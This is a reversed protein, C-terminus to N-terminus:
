PSLAYVEVQGIGTAGNKGRVIATYPAAPLTAVIASELNDPPPVTTAIIEAEQTSRWDDNMFLIMGNANAIELTSDPLRGPIPTGGVNLSPGLARVIVRRSGSGSIILGGIMVNDGTQVLGRTSINALQSDVTRNLDYVEVSGVGSTNGAGRVIATYATTNAPLTAVIASELDNPPPVTSAIIEAEQTARWNDNMAITGSPGKLELTTDGLRGPIPVGGVNLSPGLARVIVKKPATGTVIFGGILVNDGTQVALRTSINALVTPLPPGGNLEFAGIDRGDGGAANPVAPDDFISLGRQDSLGLSNGKDIAPSGSLLGVTDTNGGNNQLAGLMANIPAASTGVQDGTANFGASSDGIGILNYGQSTFTGDVDSGGNHDGTNGASVTNRTIGTGGAATLGGRGVGPSGNTFMNSGTGGAGGHGANGTLTAAAVTMTGQNFVGTSASGGNGGFMGNGGAGGTASNATMTSNTITLNATTDNFIAGGLGDGGNGGHVNGGIAGSGDGGRGGVASNGSLTCANLTLVGSNGIGGGWGRGGLGAATVNNAGQVHNNSFSCNSLSLTSNISNFIGGGATGGGSGATATANGDRITLGSIANSGSSFYFVRIANNGSVALLRAGPGTIAVSGTTTLTGLASQLTIVGTVGNAFAIANAGIVANAANIAERFTCDIGNCTGDDHDNITTVVFPPIDAMELAGIDSGDGGSADPVGPLDVPRALGRQDTTVAFSKGQDLAPSGALLAMTATPGGNNQLPGLKPDTNIQDGSATLFGGGADSSLNYGQSTISTGLGINELNAGNGGTQFITNKLQVFANGGNTGTNYIGGGTPATNASVTSNSVTANAVHTDGAGENYIAGGTFNSSNHDFTCNSATLTGNINAAGGGENSATNNFFTCNSVVAPGIGTNLGGGIDANNASLTSNKLVLSKVNYIAGGFNANNGSFTCGDVTLNGSLFNGIGGGSGQLTSATATNDNIICNSVTLTANFNVIGGGVGSTVEVNDLVSHGNTIAIGSITVIAGPQGSIGVHFIRFVGSTRTVELLNAGPGIITISKTILLEGSTLSIVGTVAFTITDGNDSAAIAERLTGAGSDGQSTVVRNTALAISSSLILALIPLPWLFRAYQFPQIRMIQFFNSTAAALEGQEDRRCKKKGRIEVLIGTAM